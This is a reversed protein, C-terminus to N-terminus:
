NVQYNYNRDNEIWFTDFEITDFTIFTFTRNKKENEKVIPSNIKSLVELSIRLKNTEWYLKNFTFKHVYLIVYLKM